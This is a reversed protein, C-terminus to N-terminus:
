QLCSLTESARSEIFSVVTFKYYESSLVTNSTFKWTNRRRTVNLSLVHYVQRTREHGVVIASDPYIDAECIWHTTKRGDTDNLLHM